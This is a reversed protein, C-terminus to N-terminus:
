DVELEEETGNVVVRVKSDCEGDGYYISIEKNETTIVKVGAVPKRGRRSRRCTKDFVLDETILSSYAVGRRTVGEATGSVYVKGNSRDWVRVHDAERTAFTGDEWTIKGDELTVNFTLVSDPENSINTTTRTGEIAIGNISYNVFTMTIVSGVEVHKGIFTIVIKGKRLNGKADICGDGFDLTITGAERTGAFSFVGSCFRDDDITDETKGGTSSENVADMSVMSLGDIDEYVAEMDTESVVLDTADLANETIVDESCAAFLLGALLFMFFRNMKDNLKITKM